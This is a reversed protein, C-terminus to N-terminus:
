RTVTVPIRLGTEVISGAVRKRADAIVVEIFPNMLTAPIVGPHRMRKESQQRPPPETGHITVGTVLWSPYRM